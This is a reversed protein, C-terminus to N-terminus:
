SASSGHFAALVLFFPFSICFGKLFGVTMHSFTHSGNFEPFAPIFHAACFTESSLQQNKWLETQTERQKYSLATASIRFKM